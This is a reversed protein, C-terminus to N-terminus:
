LLELTFGVSNTQVLMYTEGQIKTYTKSLLKAAKGTLFKSAEDIAAMKHLEPM